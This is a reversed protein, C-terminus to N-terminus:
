SVTSRRETISKSVKEVGSNGTAPSSQFFPGGNGYSGNKLIVSKEHFGDLTKRIRMQSFPSMFVPSFTKILFYYLKGYTKPINQVRGQLGSEAIPGPAGDV